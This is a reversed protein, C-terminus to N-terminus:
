QTRLRRPPSNSHSVVLIIAPPLFRVRHAIKANLSTLCRAPLPEGPNGLRDELLM